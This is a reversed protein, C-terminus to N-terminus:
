NDSGRKWKRNGERGRGREGEYSKEEKRRERGGTEKMHKWNKVKKMNEEKRLETKISIEKRTYKRWEKKEIRQKKKRKEEGRFSRARTKEREKREKKIKSRDFM